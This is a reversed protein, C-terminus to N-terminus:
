RLLVIKRAQSRGAAELRVVYVGSAMGSGGVRVSHEGSDMVGDVYVAVERGLLDYLALRVRTTGPVGFRIVTEPNFPNPFNQYLTVADPALPSPEEALTSRSRLAVHVRTAGSDSVTINRLTDPHYGGAEIRLTYTGPLLM